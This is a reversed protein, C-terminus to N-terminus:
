TRSIKNEHELTASVFRASHLSWRLPLGQEYPWTRSERTVMASKRHNM